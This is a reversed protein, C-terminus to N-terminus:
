SRGAGQAVLRRISAIGFVPGLALLPFAWQWGLRGAIPPVLQISVTTLLFGAATQVTLATGVAHPPVSETVLASFQASDAVVFFGWTWALLSVAALSAGFLLGILLACSGSAALALTVLRERGARDAVLGGWVCGAGGAAITGFSALSVEGASTGGHRAASAALFVPIWTWCSYLEFMHGLYGGTALRFRRVRVVEAALGWSFARPPFPFPGDRYFALVLLAAAAAGCSATLVVQAIGAGHLAHVLYPTAKGVTLAGVVAGIALGRRARFWTAVMKMGPPYVGALFFGTAFRCALAARYGPAALLAANALGGLAAAAAFLLRSPVVDALNLVAACTTGAVFGLQVITTLWGIQPATLRWGAALQPAVASAGFWLSMGLLEATCLLALMRWRAPHTDPGGAATGTGALRAAAPGGADPLPPAAPEAV